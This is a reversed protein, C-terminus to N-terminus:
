YPAISPTSANWNWKYSFLGGGITNSQSWLEAEGSMLSITYGILGIGNFNCFQFSYIGAAASNFSFVASPTSVLFGASFAYPCNQVDGAPDPAGIYYAPNALPYVFGFFPNIQQGNYNWVPPHNYGGPTGVNLYLSPTNYERPTWELVLSLGDVSLVYALSDSHSASDVVKITVSFTGAVMPTGSIVGSSSMSIGAPFAGSLVSWTYPATGGSASMAKSYSVGRSAGPLSSTTISVEPSLSNLLHGNASNCM